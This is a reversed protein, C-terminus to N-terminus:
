NHWIYSKEKLNYLKDEYGALNYLTTKVNEYLSFM